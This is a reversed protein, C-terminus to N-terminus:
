AARAAGDPTAPAAELFHEIDLLSNRIRHLTTLLRRAAGDDDRELQKMLAALAGQAEARSPASPESTAHVIRDLLRELRAARTRLAPTAAVHSRADIVAHGIELVSLGYGQLADRREAPVDTTAQIQLLLDRCHSEFRRRLGRLPCECAQAIQRRLSRHLRELRAEGEAPLLVGFTLSGAAMGIILALGQDLLFAPDHTPPNQPSLLNTFFILFSAGVGASAPHSALWLGFVLFPLMALVLLPFGSMMPLVLLACVFSLVISLGIGVIMQRIAFRPQPAAAFLCCVVCANLAAAAGDPWDSAIWFASVLLLALAARLGTVFAGGLEAHPTFRAGLPTEEAGGAHITALSAYVRTYAILEATLQRLLEVGSDYDLADGAAPAPGHADLAHAADLLAPLARAAEAARTPPRELAAHLPRAHVLLAHRTVEGGQRRLRALLRELAHFTTLAAMFDVNLQQLRANRVRTDADEFFAASRLSEMRVIDAALRTHLAVGRAAVIDDRLTDAILRAFDQYRSRVLAVLAPTLRQPAVVDAIVGACLVGLLVESVRSLAIDFAAGATLAASFGILSATYGALVFAYAKFDRFRAAGMACAGVWLAVAGIFLERYQSFLMVLLLTAASGVLTGAARYASKALVFGSQPQSVIFVTMMATAPKDLGFRMSLWLALFGAFLTKAIFLWLQWQAHEVRLVARLTARWGHGTTAASM